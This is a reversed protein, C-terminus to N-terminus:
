YHEVRYLVPGSKALGFTAIASPNSLSGSWNYQLWSPVTASLSVYGLNGAGTGKLWLNFNGAFGTVGNADTGSVGGELFKHNGIPSAGTCGAGSAGPSASDRVCTSSAALTGSSIVLNTTTCTDASNLQWGSLAGQWYEIRFPVPLDLTEPGIANQM